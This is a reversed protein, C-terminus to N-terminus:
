RLYLAGYHNIASAGLDDAFINGRVGNKAPAKWTAAKLIDGNTMDIFTHVNKGALVKAYRQGVRYSAIPAPEHTFGNSEYYAAYLRTVLACYRELTVAFQEPSILLPVSPM